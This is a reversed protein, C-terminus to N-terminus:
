GAAKVVRRARVAEALLDLVRVSDDWGLCPDTISKGYALPKGPVLDQRGEQLNSEVMVGLLREEGAAVQAAVAEAVEVQRQYQKFCNAHSCDVMVRPALGAGAM